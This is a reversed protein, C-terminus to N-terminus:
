IYYAGNNDVIHQWRKPLSKIGAQYFDPSKSAFYETLFKKLDDEDEFSKESLHSALSGFLHYDSPALDPSYPPHRITTWKLDQIKKKTLLAVHPQKGKLSQAVRDLQQCYVHAQEWYIIGRTGWWFCLMIKKPHLEPKPTPVGKEGSGLWQRSHRYNVYTVWKEDGTM